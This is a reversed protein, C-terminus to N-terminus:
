NNDMSSSIAENNILIAESSTAVEENVEEVGSITGQRADQGIMLQSAILAVFFVAFMATGLKYINNKLWNFLGLKMPVDVLSLEITGTLARKEIKTDTNELKWNGIETKARNEITKEKESFIVKYKLRVEDRAHKELYNFFWKETTYFNRGIKKAKLKKRQVLLSLYKASYLNDAEFRRLPILKERPNTSNYRM